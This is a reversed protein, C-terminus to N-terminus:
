IVAKFGRIRRKQAIKAARELGKRAFALTDAIIKESNYRTPVPPNAIVLRCVEIVGLLYDDKIDEPFTAIKSFECAPYWDNYGGHAGPKPEQYAVRQEIDAPVRYEWKQEERWKRKSAKHEAEQKRRREEYGVPDKAKAEKEAKIAADILSNLRDDAMEPYKEPHLKRDRRFAREHAARLRNSERRRKFVRNVAAKLPMPKGNKYTQDDCIGVLRGEHWEYGNGIVLFLHNLEAARNPHISSYAACGFYVQDELRM